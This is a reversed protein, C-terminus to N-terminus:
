LGSGSRCFFGYGNPDPDSVHEGSEEKQGKKGALCPCRGQQKKHNELGTPGLFLHVCVPQWLGRASFSTIKCATANLQYLLIPGVERGRGGRGGITRNRRDGGGEVWNISKIRIFTCTFTFTCRLVIDNWSYGLRPCEMGNRGVSHWAM